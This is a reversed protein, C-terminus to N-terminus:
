AKSFGIKKRENVLNVIFDENFMAVDSKVVSIHSGSEAQKKQSKSVRQLCNRIMLESAIRMIRTSSHKREEKGNLMSIFHAMYKRASATLAMNEDALKKKLILMLEDDSYDEFSLVNVIDTAKEVDAGLDSATLQPVVYIIMYSGAIEIMQSVLIAKIRERFGPINELKKSDEDFLLIGGKSKILIEGLYRLA